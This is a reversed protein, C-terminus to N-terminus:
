ATTSQSQSPAIPRYLLSRHVYEAQPNIPLFLLSSFVPRFRFCVSNSSSVRSVSGSTSFLCLLRAGIQMVFPVLDVYCQSRLETSMDELRTVNGYEVLEDIYKQEYMNLLQHELWLIM